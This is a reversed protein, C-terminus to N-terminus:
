KIFNVAGKAIKALDFNEAALNYANEGIKEQTEKNHILNKVKHVFEDDTNAILINQKNTYPIGEAGLSTSIIPKKLAMAEIIKVRLGSGSFLPVILPGNNSMFNYANEVEGIFKIAPKNQLCNILWKPANRGAILLETKAETELIKNWCKNIFWILGNQNPIWDLAGIFIINQQYKYKQPTPIKKLDIGFPAIHLPKTNGLAIYKEADFPSIPLIYDYTNLLSLELQKLRKALINFYLKKFFSKTEISNREWIKYEINHPRYIIHGTYIKKLAHIYQLMYLSEIQIFDFHKSQVIATLRKLYKKSYFRQAIYPKESFFLNFCLKFISIHTNIKIGVITIKNKYEPDILAAKNFHKYTEMNLLYVRHGNKVYGKALSLIALSGGDPPFTAKNALQLINM